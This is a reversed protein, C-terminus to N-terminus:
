GPNNLKPKVMIINERLRTFIDLSPKIEGIQVRHVTRVLNELRVKTKLERDRLNNDGTYHTYVDWVLAAAAVAAVAWTPIAKNDFDPFNELQAMNIEGAKNLANAKELVELLNEFSELESKTLNTGAFFDKTKKAM